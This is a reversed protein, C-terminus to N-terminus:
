ADDDDEEELLEEDAKVIEDDHEVEEEDEDEEGATTIEDIVDEISKKSLTAEFRLRKSKCFEIDGDNLPVTKDNVVKGIVVRETASKLILKHDGKLVLRGAADKGAAIKEPAANATPEAGKAKPVSDVKKEKKDSHKTCFETGLVSVSGCPNDRRDGRSLIYTCNKKAPAPTDDSSEEDSSPKVYKDAHKKHASCMICDKTVNKGCVQGKNPARVSKYPCTASVSKKAVAVKKEKVVAAKKTEVIEAVPEEPDNEVEKVVTTPSNNFAVTIKMRKVKERWIGYLEEPTTEMEFKGIIEIAFENFLLKIISSNM